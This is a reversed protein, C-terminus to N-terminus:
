HLAGVTWLSCLLIHPMTAADITGSSRSTHYSGAPVLSKSQCLL